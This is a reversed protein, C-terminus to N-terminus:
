SFEISSSDLSSFVVHSYYTCLYVYERKHFIIHDEWYASIHTMRLGRLRFTAKVGFGKIFEYYLVRRHLERKGDTFVIVPPKGSDTTEIWRTQKKNLYKIIM